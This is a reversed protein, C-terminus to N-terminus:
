QEKELFGLSVLFDDLERLTKEFYKGDAKERNFFGHPQDKYLRLECRRGAAEMRAKYREATAVPILHDETGLFVITPPSKSDIQHMPSIAEWYDKVRDHGYGEPGNDFVPNFLALADPRSSVALDEGEEEFDDVNGMAAAVHGGASGGGAAVRQPDIGLSGAHKRIWRLASKGDKVCEKPTTGNRSKVRYEASMAVMGRTALYDCQPFFQSAQGGNWGGGFFFVIAPRKDSAKWGPPSFVHLKLKTDGITKYVESREPVPLMGKEAGFAFPGFLLLAFLTLFPTRMM